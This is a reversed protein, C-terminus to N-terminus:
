TLPIKPPANKTIAADQLAEILSEHDDLMYQVRDLTEKRHKAIETNPDLTEESKKDEDLPTKKEGNEDSQTTAQQNALADEKIKAEDKLKTLRNILRKRLKTVSLPNANAGSNGVLSQDTLKKALGMATAGVSVGTSSAAASAAAKIAALTADKYADLVETPDNDFSKLNWNGIDDKILAARFEGEGSAYVSNIKAWNYDAFLREITRVRDSTEESSFADIPHFIMDTLLAPATARNWTYLNLFNTPETNRLFVSLPLDKRNTEFQLMLADSHSELQNSYESAANAIGAMIIRISRKPPASPVHAEAWYFAKAKLQMSYEAVSRVIGEVKQKETTTINSDIKPPTYNTIDSQLKNAKTIMKRVDNYMQALMMCGTFNSPSISHHLSDHLKEGSCWKLGKESSSSRYSKSEVVRTDRGKYETIPMNPNVELDPHNCDDSSCSNGKSPDNSRPTRQLYGEYAAVSVLSDNFSQFAQSSENILGTLEGWQTTTDKSLPGKYVEVEVRISSATSFTSLTECSTQGILLIGLLLTWCVSQSRMNFSQSRTM